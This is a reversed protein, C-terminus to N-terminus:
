IKASKSVERNCWNEFNLLKRNPINIRLYFDKLNQVGRKFVGCGTHGYDESFSADKKSDNAPRTMQCKLGEVEYRTLSRKLFPLFVEDLRM